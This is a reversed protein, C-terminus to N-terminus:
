PMTVHLKARAKAYAEEANTLDTEASALERKATEVRTRALELKIAELFAAARQDGHERQKSGLAGYELSM